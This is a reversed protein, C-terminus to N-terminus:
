NQRNLKVCGIKKFHLLITRNESVPNIFGFGLSNREGFGCDIGFKLIKRQEEDLYTFYFEWLSGVMMIDRGELTVYVVVEDKHYFIEFINDINIKTGYFKEYKKKLNDELQKLFAEHPYMKRWYVYRKKRFEKPINYVDYNREPIRIIIPTASVLKLNRKPIKLEFSKVSELYFSMEGINIEKKEKLKEELIRIFLTSPSSILWNMESGKKVSFELEGKQNKPLPFLNSFCFFKYSKFDHLTNLPSEKLLSYIFGAAKHYYKQDYAFDKSAKLKLMLRM